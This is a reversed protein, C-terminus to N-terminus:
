KLLKRYKADPDRGEHHGGTKQDNRKELYRSLQSRLIALTHRGQLWPDGDDLFRDVIAKARDL